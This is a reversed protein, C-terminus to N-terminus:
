DMEKMIKIIKNNLTVIQAQLKKKFSLLEDMSQKNSKEVKVLLTEKIEKLHQEDTINSLANTVEAGVLMPMIEIAKELKEVRTVLSDMKNDVRGLNETVAVTSKYATFCDFCKNEWQASKASRTIFQNECMSCEKAIGVM